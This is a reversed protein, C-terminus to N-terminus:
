NHGATRSPSPQLPQKKKKSADSSSESPAAQLFPDVAEAPVAPLVPMAEPLTPANKVADQEPLRFGPPVVQNEGPVLFEMRHATDLMRAESINLGRNEPHQLYVCAGVSPLELYSWEYTANYIYQSFESRNDALKALAEVPVTSCDAFPLEPVATGKARLNEAVKASLQQLQTLQQGFTVQPLAVLLVSMATTLLRM